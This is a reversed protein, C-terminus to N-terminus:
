KRGCCLMVSVPDPKPGHLAIWSVFYCCFAVINYVGGQGLGCGRSECFSSGFVLFVLGTAILSGVYLSMEFMGLCWNDLVLLEFLVLAGAVLASCLGFVVAFRSAYLFPKNSPDDIDYETCYNGRLQWQYV